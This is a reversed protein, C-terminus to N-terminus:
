NLEEITVFYRHFANIISSETDKKASKLRSPATEFYKIVASVIAREERSKQQNTQTSFLEQIPM